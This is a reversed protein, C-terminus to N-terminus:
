SSLFIAIKLYKKFLFYKALQQLSKYAVKDIKQTCLYIYKKLFILFYQFQLAAIEGKLQSLRSKLDRQFFFM